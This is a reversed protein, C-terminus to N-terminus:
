LHLTINIYEKLSELSKNKPWLIFIDDYVYLELKFFPYYLMDQLNRLSTKYRRNLKLYGDDVMKKLFLTVEISLDLPGEERANHFTIQPHICVGGKTCIDCGKPNLSIYKIVKDANIPKMVELEYVYGYESAPKAYPDDEVYRSINAEEATYWISIIPELGLFTMYNGLSDINFNPNKSGHYLKTGVPISNDDGLLEYIEKLMRERHGIWKDSDEDNYYGFISQISQFISRFTDYNYPIKEDNVNMFSPLNIKNVEKDM